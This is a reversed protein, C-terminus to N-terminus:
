LNFLLFKFTSKFTSNHSALIANRTDRKNSINNTIPGFWALVNELM